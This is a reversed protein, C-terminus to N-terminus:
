RRKNRNDQVALARTGADMLETDRIITAEGDTEGEIIVPVGLALALWTFILKAQLLSLHEESPARATELEDLSKFSEPRNGRPFIVTHDVIMPVGHARYENIVTEVDVFPVLRWVNLFRAHFYFSSGADALSLLRRYKSVIGILISMLFNLDVIRPQIHGHERLVDIFHADHNYGDLDVILSETNTPTYLPLPVVIECSLDRSLRWTLVYNQPDNNTAQRAIFGMGASYFTDFPISQLGIPSMMINRIQPTSARLWYDRRYWPDVCLLLRVYPLDSEAKSLEPDRETWERIRERIPEVRRWLQDLIFRDSEPRPQSADGVRRYIRGDKHVHPTLHSEPVEIAVIAAGSPLGIESCPGRLVKTEFHPVPNLHEAASQRLRQLAVDLEKEPVGPFAGAVPNDKAAEQVGLFLWGGYTNAFASLTKALVRATVLESKYEVYWGEHVTRLIALDKPQLNQISKEFPSYM